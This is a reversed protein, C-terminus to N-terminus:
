GTAALLPWGSASTVMTSQCTLGAAAAASLYDPKRRGKYQDRHGRAREDHDAGQQQRNRGEGGAGPRGGFDLRADVLRGGFDPRADVMMQLLHLVEGLVELAHDAVGARVEARGAPPLRVEVALHVADDEEPGVDLLRPELRLLRAVVLHAARGLGRALVQLIRADQEVLELGAGGVVAGRERLPRYPSLDLALHGLALRLDRQGLRVGGGGRPLLRPPAAPTDDGGHGFGGERELALGGDDGAAAGADALRDRDLERAGAGVDGQAAALELVELRHGLLDGVEAPAREGHGHVDPLLVLDLAHDLARHRLPPPEVHHDVVGAGGEAGLGLVDRDVAPVGHDADVEVAHEQAALPGALLHHLLLGAAHDDVDGRHGAHVARRHHRVVAGGLGGDDHERALEAHGPAALADAHVADSGAGDLGLAIQVHELLRPGVALLRVVGHGRAHAHAAPALDVLDRVRADEQGGVGRRPHRALRDDDVAPWRRAFGIFCRSANIGPPREPLMSGQTEDRHGYSLQNSRQVTAGSTTPEIGM